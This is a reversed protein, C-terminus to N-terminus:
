YMELRIVNNDTGVLVRIRLDKYVRTETRDSNAVTEFKDGWQQRCQDWALNGKPLLYVETLRKTKSDFALEIQRYQATPDPFTYIDSLNQVEDSANRFAVPTGMVIQAEEVTWTLFKSRLYGGVNQQLQARENLVQLGKTMTFTGNAHDGQCDRGTYTGTGNDGSVKAIGTFIGPCDKLSQILKFTLVGDNLRGEINGGGGLATTYNGGVEGESTQVLNLQLAANSIADAFTASWAGDLRIVGVSQRAAVSLHKALAPKVAEVSRQINAADKGGFTSHSVAAEKVGLSPQTALTASAPPVSPKFSTAVHMQASPNWYKLTVVLAVLFAIVGLVAWLPSSFKARSRKAEPRHAIVSALEITTQFREQPNEALCKSIARSINKPLNPNVECIPLPHTADRQIGTFIEYLILGLSYIDSTPAVAKGMAQEPSMYHPTGIVTGLASSEGTDLSRAIGFDMVKVHGTRDIMINEPKLDRHVIKKDHAAGLAEGIELSWALGQQVSVGKVRNLISRLTEGEVYEMSILITGDIRDLGYTRCVNKHTIDLALRIENRFREIVRKDHALAPHLMKLAVVKDIERDRARFVLGMGGQGIFEINKYRESLALLVDPSPTFSAPGQSAASATGSTTMGAYAELLQKVKHFLEENGGCVEALFASQRDPTLLLAKHFLEATRNKVEEEPTM